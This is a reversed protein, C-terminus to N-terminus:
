RLVDSHSVGPFPSIFDRVYYGVPRDFLRENWFVLWYNSMIQAGQLLLLSLLLSPVLIHGNGAALYTKYVEWAVAGVNREEQMTEKGKEYREGLAAVSNHDGNGREEEGVKVKSAIEEADEKQEEQQKPSFQRVFKSFVGRNAMLETYTGHEVIQGDDVMCIYDVQPLFHLAHTTLIKTRGEPNNVFVRQFV